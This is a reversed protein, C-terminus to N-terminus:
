PAMKSLQNCTLPAPFKFYTYSPIHHKIIYHSILRFVGNWILNLGLINRILRIWLIWHRKSLALYKRYPLRLISPSVYNVMSWHQHQNSQLYINETNRRLMSHYVILSIFICNFVHHFLNSQLNIVMILSMTLIFEIRKKDVANQRLHLSPFNFCMKNTELLKMRYNFSM